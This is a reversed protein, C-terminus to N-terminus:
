ALVQDPTPQWELSVPDQQGVLTAFQTPDLIGAIDDSVDEPLEGNTIGRYLRDTAGAWRVFEPAPPETPTPPSVPREPPASDSGTSASRRRAEQQRLFTGLVDLGKEITPAWPNPDSGDSRIPEREQGLELGQRFTNFITQMLETTEIGGTAQKAVGSIQHIAAVAGVIDTISTPPPLAPVPAPKQIVEVLLRRMMRRDRRMERLLRLTADPGGLPGNAIPTATGNQVVVADPPPKPPAKRIIPDGELDRTYRYVLRSGRKGWFEFKGGGFESQIEVLNIPGIKKAIWVRPSATRGMAEMDATSRIRYVNWSIDEFDPNDLDALDGVAKAETEQIEGQFDDDLGFEAVGQDVVEGRAKRPM